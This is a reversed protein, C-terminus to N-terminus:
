DKKAETVKEVADSTTPKPQFVAFKPTAANMNVGPTMGPTMKMGPTATRNGRSLMAPTRQPPAMLTSLPDNKQKTEDNSTASAEPKNPTIATPPPPPPKVKEDPDEGPFVWVKREKDFYAEMEGGVDAIKADPNLRETIMKGLGFTWDRSSPSKFTAPASKPASEVKKTKSDLSKSEKPTNKHVVDAKLSDSKPISTMSDSKKTPASEPANKYTAISTKTDRLDGDGRRSEDAEEEKGRFKLIEGTDETEKSMSVNNEKICSDITKDEKETDITSNHRSKEDVIGYSEVPAAIATMDVVNTQATVFTDDNENKPFSKFDQHNEVSVNSKEHGSLTRSTVYSKDVEELAEKTHVPELSDEFSIKRYLREEFAKLTSSFAGCSTSLRSLILSVNDPVKTESEEGVVDVSNRFNELYSRSKDEMGLDALLMAHMLKFPYLSKIVANSNGRRKAWEFAETREYAQIGDTTLLGINERVMHDCGLLTVRSEPHQPSSIACGCVMYCFHAAHVEGLNLLRDGLSLVMRDWGFNRNSIIAALHQKWTKCLDEPSGEWYSSKSGGVSTSVRLQGSLSMAITHLPSGIMLVEDGFLKAVRQYTERKCYSAIFLAMEFNQCAIAEEVAEERKGRLLLSQVNDLRSSGGNKGEPSRSETSLGYSEKDKDSNEYHGGGDNIKTDPEVTDGDRLLLKVIAAEPGDKNKVGDDSRLRGKSKAAILILQWLMDTQGCQAKREIYSMVSADPAANLPGSINAQEKEREMCVMENEPLIHCTRYISVTSEKKGQPRWVCLKGGFGFSAVAHAPRHRDKRTSESTKLGVSVQKKSSEQKKMAETSNAKDDGVLPRDWTTREDIKNFYYTKGSSPDM